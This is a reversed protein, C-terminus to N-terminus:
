LARSLAPSCSEWGYYMLRREGSHCVEHEYLTHANGLCVNSFIFGRVSVPVLLIIKLLPESVKRYFCIATM